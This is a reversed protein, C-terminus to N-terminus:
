AGDQDKKRLKGVLVATRCSVPLQLWCDSGNIPKVLLLTDCKQSM